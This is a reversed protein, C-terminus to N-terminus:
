GGLKGSLGNDDIFKLLTKITEDRNKIADKAENLLMQTNPKVENSTGLRTRELELHEAFTPNTVLPLTCVNAVAKINVRTAILAEVDDKISDINFEDPLAGLSIGLVVESYPVFSTDPLKQIYTDPVYIMSGDSGKLTCINPFMASEAKFSFITGEFEKQDILGQPAYYTKYVDIGVKYIDEFTRIAICDYIVGEKTKWPSKLGFFGKAHLSPTM